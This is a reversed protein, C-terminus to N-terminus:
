LGAYEPGASTGFNWDLRSELGKGLRYAKNPHREMLTKTVRLGDNPLTDRLFTIGPWGRLPNEM